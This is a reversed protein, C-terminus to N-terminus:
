RDKTSHSSIARHRTRPRPMLWIAALSPQDGDVTERSTRRLRAVRPHSRRTGPWSRGAVLGDVLGEVNPAAAAAGHTPPRDANRDPRARAGPPCGAVRCSTTVESVMILWSGASTSSRATGPCQSPSRIRPSSLEAIAVSTSRMLVGVAQQALVKGLPASRLLCVQWSRSAASGGRSRPLGSLVSGTRHIRVGSASPRARRLRTRPLWSRALPVYSLRPIQSGATPGPPFPRSPRDDGFTDGEDLRDRHRLRQHSHRRPAVGTSPEMQQLSTLHPHPVPKSVGLAPVENGENRRIVTNGCAAPAFKSIRSRGWRLIFRGIRNALALCTRAGKLSRRGALM